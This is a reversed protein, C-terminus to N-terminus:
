RRKTAIAAGQDNLDNPSVIDIRKELADKVSDALWTLAKRRANSLISVFGGATIV